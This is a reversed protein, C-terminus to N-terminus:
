LIWERLVVLLCFKGVFVYPAFPTNENSDDTLCYMSIEHHPDEGFMPVQLFDLLDELIQERERLLAETEDGEDYSESELFLSSLYENFEVESEMESNRFLDLEDWYENIEAYQLEQPYLNKVWAFLEVLHKTSIVDNNLLNQDPKRFLKLDRVFPPAGVLEGYEVERALLKKIQDALESPLDQMETLEMGALQSIM